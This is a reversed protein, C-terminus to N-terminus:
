YWTGSDIGLMTEEVVCELGRSTTLIMHCSLSGHSLSVFVVLIDEDPSDKFIYQWRSDPPSEGLVALDLRYLYELFIRCIFRNFGDLVELGDNRVPRVSCASEEKTLLSWLVCVASWGGVVGVLM